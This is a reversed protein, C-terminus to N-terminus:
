VFTNVEGPGVTRGCGPGQSPRAECREISALSVCGPTVMAINVCETCVQALPTLNAWWDRHLGLIEVRRLAMLWPNRMPHGLKVSVNTSLYGLGLEAVALPCMFHGRWLMLLVWGLCPPPATTRGSGTGCIAGSTNGRKLGPTMGAYGPRAYPAHCPGFTMASSLLLDIVLVKQKLANASLCLPIM